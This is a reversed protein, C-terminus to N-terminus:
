EIFIFYYLTHELLAFLVLLIINTAETNRGYEDNYFALATNLPLMTKTLNKIM